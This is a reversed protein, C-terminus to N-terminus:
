LDIRMEIQRLDITYGLELYAPLAPDDEAINYSNSYANPYRRHLSSLIAMSVAHRDSDPSSAIDVLRIEHKDAWGLAYGVLHDGKLLAYGEIKSGLGALSDYGRQWCNPVDHFEAFHALLSVGKQDELRYDPIPAPVTKPNRDLVLLQRIEQFGIRQYLAHAGKNAEIVELFVQSLGRDHARGLLFEMMQRGIGRRRREPVVGMGGIWGMTDRIGLLGTGVIANNELAAVSASLDLDDREILARFARVTMVIPMFYDSYARNFAATFLEFNVSSVPKFTWESM